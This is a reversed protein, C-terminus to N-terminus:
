DRCESSQPANGSANVFYEDEGWYILRNCNPCSMLSNSRILEYFNQPPINLHCLQCVGGVVPGIAYGRKRVKLFEYRSLLERDIGTMLRQRKQELADSEKNLEELKQEIFKKDVEFKKQLKDQKNKNELCKKELTEIEEMFRIIGDEVKTKEKNLDEIEKLAATYEKNSKINSLKIKSKEIKGDLDQTIQETKRREKKLSELKDSDVQFTMRCATLEDELKQIKAPYDKKISDVRTIQNDCEQLFILGKIKEKL